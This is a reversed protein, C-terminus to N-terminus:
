MSVWSMKECSSHNVGMDEALFIEEGRQETNRAQSCNLPFLYSWLPFVFDPVSLDIDFLNLNEDIKKLILNIM